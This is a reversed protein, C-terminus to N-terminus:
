SAVEHRTPVSAEVSFGGTGSPGAVLHGGADELRRALNGLGSHAGSAGTRVPGPDTVRVVTRAPDFGVEISVSSAFSHRAINAAAEALAAALVEDATDSAHEAAGEISLDVRIGAATLATVWEGLVVGLAGRAGPPPTVVPPYHGNPQNNWSVVLDGLASLSEGLRREVHGLLVGRHAESAVAAAETQRLAVALAHGIRDHLEAAAGLRAEAARRQSAEREACAVAAARESLLRVGSGAAWALVVMVVNALGAPMTTHAPHAAGVVAVSIVPVVLAALRVSRRGCRAAVVAVAALGAYGAPTPPYRSAAYAVSAAWVVVFMRVPFRRWAALGVVQVLVLLDALSGPRAFGSRASWWWTPWSLIALAAVVGLTIWLIMADATRSRPVGSSTGGNALWKESRAM